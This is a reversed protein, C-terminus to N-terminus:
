PQGGQAQRRAKAQDDLKSKLDEARKLADALEKRTVWEAHADAFGVAQRAQDDDVQEWVLPVTQDCKDLPLIARYLYRRHQPDAPSVLKDPTLQKEQVLVDLSEPLVNNHTQGYIIAATAIERANLLSQHRLTQTQIEGARQGVLRVAMGLQSGDVRLAGEKLTLVDKIMARLEGAIPQFAPNADLEQQLQPSALILDRMRVLFASLDALNSPGAQAFALTVSPQPPLAVTLRASLGARTLFETSGGGIEPPLTPMLEALARREDATLAVVAELPATSNLTLESRPQPQLSRLRQLAAYHGIFLVDDRLMVAKLTKPDREYAAIEDPTVLAKAYDEPPVAALGFTTGEGFTSIVL